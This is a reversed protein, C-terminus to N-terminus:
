VSTSQAQRTGDGAVRIYLAHLSPSLGMGPLPRMKIATRRESGARYPLASNSGKVSISLLPALTRSTSRHWVTDHAPAPDLAPDSPAPLGSYRLCRRSDATLLGSLQSIQEWGCAFLALGAIRRAFNARSDVNPATKLTLDPGLQTRKPNTKPWKRLHNISKM